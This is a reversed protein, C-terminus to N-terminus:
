FEINYLFRIKRRYMSLWWSIRRYSVWVFTDFSFVSLVLSMSKELTQEIGQTGEVVSLSKYRGNSM